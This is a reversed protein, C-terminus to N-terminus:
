VASFYEPPFCGIYLFITFLMTCISTFTKSLCLSHYNYNSKEWSATLKKIQQIETENTKHPAFSRQCKSMTRCMATKSKKLKEFFPSKKLNSMQIKNTLSNVLPAESIVFQFSLLLMFMYEFSFRWPSYINSCRNLPLIIHSQWQM